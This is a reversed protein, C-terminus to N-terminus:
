LESVSGSNNLNNAPSLPPSRWGFIGKPPRPGSEVIKTLDKEGSWLSGIISKGTPRFCLTQTKM